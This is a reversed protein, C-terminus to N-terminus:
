QTEVIGTTVIEGAELGSIIEASTFDMLGVEVVRLRPEDDEVVFVGYEDPSLERVAEVPVLVADDARGGIVDVSATLGVPLTHPKAFSNADLIVLTKIAAVGSVSELQPDVQIIHGTFMDDPYADFVVEVEYGVAVKDLDTEDLYVVLLPQSLDALTIFSNSSLSEGVDATIDLITGNIPAILDIVAQDELALALNAQANVFEAEALAIEDPDPGDQLAVWQAQAAALEAEALAIEGLSPGDKVRDWESLADALQAQATALEAAAVSQDLESGTGSMANYDRVAEDYDQQAASLQAQFNAKTLDDDPRNAYPAFNEQAQELADEALIVQAWAADIDAQNATSHTFNHNREADYLADEAAAVAEWAQAQQLESNMLNDLAAQADEVAKLAEAADMQANEYLTDLDLQAQLVNLEAQAVAAMIAEVTDNTQLRALVDERQVEDGVQVLLENLTGSEDFGLEIETAAVVEGAASAFVIMDGRRAIATQLPTDELAEAPTATLAVAYNGGIALVVVAAIALVLGKKNWLNKNIFFSKIKQMPFVEKTKNKNSLSGL